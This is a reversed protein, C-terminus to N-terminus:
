QGDETNSYELMGEVEQKIQDWTVQVTEDTKISTYIIGEDNNTELIFADEYADYNNLLYSILLNEQQLTLDCDYVIPVDANEALEAQETENNYCLAIDASMVEIYCYGEEQIREEIIFDFDQTYGMAHLYDNCANSIKTRLTDDTVNDVFLKGTLGVHSQTTDPTQRANADLRLPEDKANRREKNAVDDVTKIEQYPKTTAPADTDKLVSSADATTKPTSGIYLAVGIGISLAVALVFIIATIILTKSKM